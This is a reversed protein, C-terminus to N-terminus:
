PYILNRLAGYIIWSGHAGLVLFYGNTVTMYRRSDLVTGLLCCVTSAAAAYLTGDDVTSIMPIGHLYSELDILICRQDFLMYTICTLGPPISALVYRETHGAIAPADVVLVMWGIHFGRVIYALM